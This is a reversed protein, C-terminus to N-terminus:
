FQHITDLQHASKGVSQCAVFARIPHAVAPSVLASHQGTQSRDLPSAAPKFLRIPAAGVPEFDTKNSWVISGTDQIGM